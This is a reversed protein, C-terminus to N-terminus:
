CAQNKPETNLDLLHMPPVTELFVHQPPCDFNQPNKWFNGNIEGLDYLDSRRSSNTATTRHLNSQEKIPPPWNHGLVRVTFALFKHKSCSKTTEPIPSQLMPASCLLEPYYLPRRHPHWSYSNPCWGSWEQSGPLRHRPTKHSACRPFCNCPQYNKHRNEVNWMDYPNLRRAVRGVWSLTIHMGYVGLANKWVPSNNELEVYSKPQSNTTKCVVGEMNPLSDTCAHLYYPPKFSSFETKYWDIPQWPWRPIGFPAWVVTARLPNFNTASWEFEFMYEM